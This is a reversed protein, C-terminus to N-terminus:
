DASVALVKLAEKKDAETEEEGDGGGGGEANNLAAAAKSIKMGKM